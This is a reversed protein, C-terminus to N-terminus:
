WIEVEYPPPAFLLVRSDVCVVDNAAHICMDAHFNARMIIEYYINHKNNDHNNM